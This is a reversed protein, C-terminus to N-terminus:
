REVVTTMATSAVKASARAEPEVTATAAVVVSAAAVPTVTKTPYASVRRACPSNGFGHDPDGFTVKSPHTGAAAQVKSAPAIRM